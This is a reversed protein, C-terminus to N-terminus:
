LELTLSLSLNSLLFMVKVVSENIDRWVEM